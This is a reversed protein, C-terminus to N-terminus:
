RNDSYDATTAPAKLYRDYWDLNRQLRDKLYSPTTLTHNEDPYIVLRTPIGLSKLALYMQEAGICPVNFDASACQFLTPTKIRDAKYFPYSVRKWADFNRWPLGLEQEYELAYQDAGFGALFNSMGAGSVAAKFRTDSAILYNTLIGGYSWGGVGLREPDAVGQEILEDIVAHVDKVDVDGWDAYIARAFDFGRGSSGRPNVGLVVYGNAAYLQWDAMFEYSFQYVPGGHVRVITPFTKGPQYDPPLVVLGHIEARGSKASISRTEGLRREDLWDNHHTLPRAEPAVARLEYPRSPDGDLVTVEGNPGLAYDYALREGSTLYEIANTEPNIRALYIASDQEILAYLSKGDASWRPSYFWRDIRAVDRTEGSAVDAVTPQFPSYYIWREEGARVWVLRKGDASWAPPTEFDPDNDAGKYDGLQRPEAGAKPAMVFIDFDSNRDANDGRKAVFSIFAGDPSWGPYVCDFDGSTIQEAKGTALNVLFLHQRRDDLYAREDEKFYFRDIVIPPTNETKKGINAGVEAVVVAKSGDPSLAYDSIGGPLKTVQRAAGGKAPMLWLQTEEDKGKDSLFALSKGDQTFKATWESTADTKTVRVSVGTQWDVKWLDSVTADKKLNHTSLTYVISKGDPAFIPETLDAIRHIDDITFLTKEQAAAPAFQSLTVFFLATELTRARM